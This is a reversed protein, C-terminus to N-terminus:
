KYLVAKSSNKKFIKEILSYEKRVTFITNFVLLIFMLFIIWNICHLSCKMEKSNRIMQEIKLELFKNRENIKDIQDLKIISDLSESKTM